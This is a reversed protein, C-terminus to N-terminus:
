HSTPTITKPPINTSEEQCNESEKSQKKLRDIEMVLTEIQFELRGIEKSQKEIKKEKSNLQEMLYSIAESLPITPTYKGQDKKSTDGLSPDENTHDSSLFISFNNKWENETEKEM